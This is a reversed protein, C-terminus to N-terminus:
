RGPIGGGGRSAASGGVANLISPTTTKAATSATTKTIIIDGEKLGSTIETLTDDSLGSTISIQTPVLATTFTQSGTVPGTISADFTQVYSTGNNATKIAGNSVVVVDQAMDTIIDASVSMASKVRPDQTDFGIKVNYDVVGQSVTGVSDIEAVQGAITLDPIADFTLTAKEGLKIKAVDVENLIITALEKSTIITGLTTGSSAQDGVNVPVSAIVGDFPATIQYKALNDKADALANEKQTVSLEASQIDLPDAGAKLKALSATDETISGEADTIAQKSSEITNKISFLNSLDANIINTYTTLTNQASLFDSSRGTDQAMYDVFNKASKITDSLVKTTTYTKDIINEIDSTPSDRTLLRFDVQNADLANKAQYYLTETQNRYNLATDGSNRASNDSLNVQGLITNIGDITPVLDLFTSSVNNFGDGYAKTLSTEANQKSAIAKALNDQSQTLSLVDAPEQLKALSLKASVLSVEADRVTKQADIDDLTFLTQGASVKDGAKVRASTIIGSVTPKLDIQSSASVQGSGSVTSIVTGKAVVSLTYKTEGATSTLKGHLWYIGFVVVILIIVSITKHSTIFLKIKTLFNKM